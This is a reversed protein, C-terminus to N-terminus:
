STSVPSRLLACPKTADCISPSRSGIATAFIPMSVPMPNAGNPPSAYSTYLLILLSSVVGMRTAAAFSSAVSRSGLILAANALAQESLFQRTRSAATNAIALVIRRQKGQDRHREIVLTASDPVLGGSRHQAQTSLHDGLSRLIVSGPLM